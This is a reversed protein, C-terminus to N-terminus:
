EAGSCAGLIGAGGGMERGTERGLVARRGVPGLVPEMTEEFAEKMVVVSVDEIWVEEVPELLEPGAEGGLDEWPCCWGCSGWFASM